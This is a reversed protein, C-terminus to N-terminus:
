LAADGLVLALVAQGEGIGQVLDEGVNHQAGDDHEGYQVGNEINGNFIAGIGLAPNFVEKGPHGIRDAAVHGVALQFREKNVADDAAHARNHGEHGQDGDHEDHDGENFVAAVHGTDAVHHVADEAHEAQMAGRDHGVDNCATDGAAAGNGAGHGGPGQAAGLFLQCGQQRQGIHGAAGLNRHEQQQNRGEEGFVGGCGEKDNEDGAPYAGQKYGQKQAVGDDLALGSGKNHFQRGVAHGGQECHEQM